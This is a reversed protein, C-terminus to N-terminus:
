SLEDLLAKAEKLDPTDFGETFWGYIKALLERAEEKKEQKKWLRSLSVSARLELSKAQRHHAVDVAKRFSSEAGNEDPVDQMQLLEGRIRYLEAEYFGAGTKEIVTQAESLSALGKKIEGKKGYADSLLVLMHSLTVETGAQQCAEIGQCIMPIGEEGRGQTAMASGLYAKSMAIWLGFEHEETIAVAKEGYAQANKAERLMLYVFAATWIVFATTFVHSLEQALDIAKNISQIAQEPHGLIWLVEAGHSYCVGCPDERGPILIRSNKPQSIYLDISQKFHTRASTYGGTWMFNAGLEHHAEILSAPDQEQQAINLIQNAVKYSTKLEARVLYYVWLGHLVTLLQATEGIQKSLEWARDLSLKVEPAGFGKVEMLTTGLATQLSLEIAKQESEQPLMKYLELGKVYHGIAEM